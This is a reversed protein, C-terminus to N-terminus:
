HSGKAKHVQKKSFFDLASSLCEDKISNERYVVSVNRGNYKVQVTNTLDTISDSM